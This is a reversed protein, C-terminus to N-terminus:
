CRSPSCLSLITPLHFVFLTLIVCFLYSSCASLFIPFGRWGCEGGVWSVCEGFLLYTGIINNFAWQLEKAHGFFAETNKREIGESAEETTEENNGLKLDGLVYGLLLCVVFEKESLKNNDYLDAEHFVKKADEESVDNGLVKLAETLEGHDMSNSNDVDFKKFVQRVADLASVIRGSRLLVQNFSSVRESKPIDSAKAQYRQLALTMRNDFESKPAPAKKPVVQAAPGAAVSASSKSGCIGM